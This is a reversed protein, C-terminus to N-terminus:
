QLIQSPTLRCNIKWRDRVFRSTEWVRQETSTQMEHCKKPFANVARKFNIRVLVLKVECETWICRDLFWCSLWFAWQIKIFFSWQHRREVLELNECQPFSHFLMFHDALGPIWRIVLLFILYRFNRWTARIELVLALCLALVLCLANGYWRMLWDNAKGGAVVDTMWKVQLSNGCWRDSSASSISSASTSSM